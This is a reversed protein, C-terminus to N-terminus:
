QNTDTENIGGLFWRKWVQSLNEWGLYEVSRRCEDVSPRDHLVKEIAEVWDGLRTVPRLSNGAAEVVMEVPQVLHEPSMVLEAAGAYNVTICPTGCALSEVVPYGFGEGGTCLITLDCASYHNSLIEDSDASDVRLITIDGLGMEYVLSRMDWYRHLEDVQIWWHVPWGRTRLDAIIQAAQGWHKRVQNTGVMGILIDKSSFGMAWKAGDRGRPKFSNLDIGHPVFEVERGLCKTMVESGFMTYALVRDYGKLADTSVPDLFGSISRRDIPFYGWRQFSGTELFTRLVEGEIAKPQSFWQMRSPDMITFIIGKEGHAFDGWVQPLYADGWEMGEPYIYQPWPLVRSAVGGRGYTGVRFEPMGSLLTALHRAIRALGTHLSPSDGYILIPRNM